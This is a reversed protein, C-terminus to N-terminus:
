LIPPSPSYIAPSSSDMYIGFACDYYYYYIHDGFTWQNTYDAPGVLMTLEGDIQIGDLMFSGPDIIAVADFSGGPFPSSLWARGSLKLCELVPPCGYRAPCRWSAATIGLVDTRNALTESEMESITAAHFRADISAALRGRGASQEVLYGVACIRGEHDIFVPQRGDPCREHRPFFGAIRYDHLRDLNREAGRSGRGALLERRPRPSTDRCLRSPNRDSIEGASADPLRGTACLFSEDGLIANVAGPCSPDAPAVLALAASSQIAAFLIGWVLGRTSAFRNSMPRTELHAFSPRGNMIHRVM